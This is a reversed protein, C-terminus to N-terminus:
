KSVEKFAELWYLYDKRSMKSYCSTHNLLEGKEIVPNLINDPINKTLNTLSNYQEEKRVMESHIAHLKRHMESVHRVITDPKKNQTYKTTGILSYDHEFKDLNILRLAFGTKVERMTLSWNNLIIRNTGNEKTRNVLAAGILSKKLKM